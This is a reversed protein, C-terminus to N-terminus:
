FSVVTRGRQNGRTHIEICNLILKITEESHCQLVPTCLTLSKEFNITNTTDHYHLFSKRIDDSLSSEYVYVCTHTLVFSRIYVFKYVYTLIYYGNTYM